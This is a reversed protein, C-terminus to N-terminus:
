YEAIYERSKYFCAGLMDAISVGGHDYSPCVWQWLAHQTVHDIYSLGCNQQYKTRNLM